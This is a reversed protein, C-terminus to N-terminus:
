EDEQLDKPVFMQHHQLSRRIHAIDEDNGANDIQNQLGSGMLADKPIPRLPVVDGVNQPGYAAGGPPQYAFDSSNAM